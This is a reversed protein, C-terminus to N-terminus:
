GLIAWRIRLNGAGSPMPVEHTENCIVQNEPTYYALVELKVATGDGLDIVYVNGTMEVCGAYSWFSALATGPAGIGSADPVLECDESFYRETRYELGAPVSDLAEFDTNPATRGVTVDAPGAVGSNVRVVYRRVGLHWATSEFADEDSIDVQEIGDPTFRVYVYSTVPTVGGGTADILTEFYDGKDTDEQITDSAPMDLLMLATISEDICAVEHSPAQADPTDDRHAAESSSSESCAGSLAVILSLGLSRYM